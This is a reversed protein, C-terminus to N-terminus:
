GEKILEERDGEKILHEKLGELATITREVVPLLQRKEYPTVKLDAVVRIVTSVLANLEECLSLYGDFRKKKELQAYQWDIPLTSDLVKCISVLKPPSPYYGEESFYRQIQSLGIGTENAIEELTKGSMEKTVRLVTTFSLNRLEM